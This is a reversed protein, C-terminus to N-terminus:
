RDLAKEEQKRRMFDDVSRGRNALLGYSRSQRRSAHARPKYADIDAAELLINGYERHAKLAGVKIKYYIAERRVGIRRAAETVTIMEM